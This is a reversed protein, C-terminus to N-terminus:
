TIYKCRFIQIQSGGTLSLMCYQREPDKNGGLIDDKRTRGLKRFLEHNLIKVASSYEM